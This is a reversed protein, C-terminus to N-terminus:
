EYASESTGVKMDIKSINTLYWEENSSSIYKEGTQDSTRDAMYISWPNSDFGVTLTASIECAPRDTHPKLDDGEAYLRAYSYTPFLKKGCAQEFYPLLQELLSDFTESAYIAESLPSQEDKHSLGDRVHKNLAETLEKCNDLDLFEPLHVYGNNNFQEVVFESM